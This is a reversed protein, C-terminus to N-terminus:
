NMTLVLFLVGWFFGDGELPLVAERGADFGTLAAALFATFFGAGFFGALGTLFAAFGAELGLGAGFGSGAFFAGGALFGTGAFFATLGVGLGAGALVGAGFAAGTAGFFAAGGTEM